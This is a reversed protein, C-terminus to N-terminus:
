GVWIVEVELRALPGDIAKVYGRFWPEDPFALAVRAKPNKTRLTAATYFGKSVRDFVQSQAYPKGHRESGARSSTSGKAEVLLRVGDKEAIIDIGRQTTTLRQVIRHGGQVLQACARDVVDNEDLM